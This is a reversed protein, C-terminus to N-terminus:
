KVLRMDTIYSLEPFNEILYPNGKTAIKGQQPTEGYGNYIRDLIDLGSVIKGIPAFGEKDLYSNDNFNFFLQYTRTNKGASAFTLTGRTNKQLVPDDPIPLKAWPALEAVPLAPIGFQAM